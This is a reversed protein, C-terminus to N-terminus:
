RRTLKLAGEPLEVAEPKTVSVIVGETDLYREILARIREPTVAEIRDGYEFSRSAGLGYLTDLAVSMARASNRQLGIDHNGILYRKASSIEEDSPPERKLREMESLIGGIAESVKEPSTGINVMFASAELGLLMSAYVSYALSRKDRLEHFLRGGQGSLVAHVIELAFREEEDEIRPAEFGVIVHAQNKELDASVLREEGRRPAEFERWRPSFAEDSLVAERGSSHAASRKSAEEFMSEFRAVCREADVDGVVVIVMQSPDLLELLYERAREVELRELGQPSGLASMAYPHGKFFAQAFREYNVSGLHDQRSRIEQIQLRKLREFEHEPITSELLCEGFLTLSPDFFQSLGTLSLGFTNRGSMGSISTAMSEMDRAIQVANRQTTGLTVLDALMANLGNTAEEEFRLGGPVLARVSFLEVARHEQVLVLPGSKLRHTIFGYADPELKIRSTDQDIKVSVQPPMTVELVPAEPEAAASRAAQRVVRELEDPTAAGDEATHALVLTLNEPRLYRAAARRIAAADVQSLREYYTREFNPDGTVMDLQGIKMALGEVTQKSYIAQSELITRARAVQAATPERHAFAFVRELIAELIQEHSTAGVVGEGSRALQYDASIMFLGAERPTYSGAYIANVLEREYLIAEHLVSAEGQGMITGLMEVAAIEEHLVDPIHFGLRLHTDQRGEEAVHLRMERQPPEEPRRVGQYAPGEFDGFYREVLQRAHQEELDGALVVTMNSPVYHKTFFSRVDDRGFSAVSQSTGIVPLRYPHERYATEFLKLSAMRSPSDEGRKIEEQIVELERGLEEADFSSRRIADSLIDVGREVYRSSMVVYYCTQDFSTFANIHGGAAEVERAIEGVGRRETGKFLMHEHVHALGAEAPTEDASGVGVWVNCAVVPAGEIPILLVKMGNELKYDILNDM